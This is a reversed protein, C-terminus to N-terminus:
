EVVLKSKSINDGKQLIITYVGKAIGNLNLIHYNDGNTAKDADSKLERGLMDILKINYLGEDMSPFSITVEDTAPNPYINFPIVNPQEALRPVLTTFTQISSWGSNVNNNSTCDTMIQWDYSYLHVLGTFTYSSGSVLFTTWNNMNHISIRLSYNVACQSQIWGATANNQTINTTTLSTPLACNSTVSHSAVCTCGYANDTAYVTYTGVSSVTATYATGGSPSWSYANFGNTATLIVSTPAVQACFNFNAPNGTISITAVNTITLTSAPSCGCSNCATVSIVGTSTGITTTISTTTSTGNWGNPMSWVYYTTNAVATISYIAVSGQCVQTPGTIPGPQAPVTVVSVPLTRVPSNGCANSAYVSITGSTNGITVTISNTTSSGSWGGPLSWTYSTAGAVPAISYTQVTGACAPTPGTIPGPQPPVTMVNVLISDWSSSGCSDNARVKVYGSTTGIPNSTISTTISSGPWGSPLQWTYSTAGTVPAISYTQSTGSCPTTSGTILGPAGVPIVTVSLTRPASSGCTDIAVVSVNGSSGGVLVTISTTNSTGTWGGPLTWAYSTAGNVAAISYTQSSNQCVSTLGTINGPTAPVNMVTIALTRAPGCGCANCATVSINGGNAGVTVTISNTTSSGTWGGPVTWTYNTAGNVPAVSYTIISGQCPTSNGTIPGPQPPVANGVTVTLTSAASTGCANSATVTITGSITGATVTISNSTSNGVWGVPLTWTYSTAGTVATISYTQISGQCVTINGTIPGPQAPIAVETVALTDPASSGCANNARVIIYGSNAGVTLNISNTNSSGTWGAPTTWTYSSAGTVPAISYTQTSGLCVTANGTIPGPQAPVHLVTIALTQAPGSGCANHAAVTINGSLTGVVVTISTSISTGTWGNPTTWVYSTAGIVPSIMYIQTSGACVTTSGSIPGPQPLSSGVTVALSQAPSNGCANVARVTITGSTIGVNVIIFNNTSTGTWGNPTTWIYSTAGTVPVVFYTQSSSDCPTTSGNIPGPQAPAGSIVTITITSYSSVGCANVSQISITGGTAGVTTTICTTTSTGSWGAPLTWNYTTAGAVSAICYTVVSGQCVTLPGTIPGPTNPPAVISVALVRGPGSGCANNAYVIINGSGAGTTVNISNTISSGSWGIPLVWTYSTAGSVPAISYTQSTGQCIMAPGTIPGPQPPTHAVSVALSEAPSNGCSNVAVVTVFTSSNMVTVNISNTISTGVWGTPLTWIYSTAGTVPAVSYTQSTGYCPNTPGTIPGPQPPPGICGSFLGSSSAEKASAYIGCPVFALASILILLLIARKIVRQFFSSASNGTGILSINKYINKM